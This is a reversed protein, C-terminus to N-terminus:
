ECNITPIAFDHLFNKVSDFCQRKFHRECIRNQEDNWELHCFKLWSIRREDTPFSFLNQDCGCGPVVCNEM